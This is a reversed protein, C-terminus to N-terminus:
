GECSMCDSTEVKRREIKAGVEEARRPSTSRYYYLSKLGKEWAAIHVKNVYRLEEKDRFFLNVSQGQDIYNQRQAAHEVVWNQDLEFATKFVDKVNDPLDLHQVSGEHQIISAWKEKDDEPVYEFLLPNKWVKSGVKTKRLIANTSIPEIGASIEGMIISNSATPAVAFIHANRMYSGKIGEPEGRDVALKASRGKAQKEVKSHIKNIWAIAVVSEFPVMKQQLFTHWGMFGIGISRENVVSRIARAFDKHDSNRDIFDQLVNDLMEVLDGVFMEDDKWEDYKALNISSLCCVATYDKETPLFIETCLNSQRIRYNKERLHPNMAQNATDTFVLYPEGTQSRVELIQQWLRRARITGVVKGDSPDVLNFDTNKLVAEMFEDSINVGHHLNQCRRNEDGGTPKRITIFEEIEPHSVDLFVAQAGRRTGGQSYALIASDCNKIFPIVGSSVGGNSIASGQPRVTSWNTGIGGGRSSLWANESYNELIGMRSDDVHNLFCSIPNGRNSGGNSLVPSAFGFWHKSVYEYLRQAHAADTGYAECVRKFAEQPSQENPMLYSQRLTSLGYETFKSDRSLDIKVM